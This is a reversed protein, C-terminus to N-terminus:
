HPVFAEAEAGGVKGHENGRPFMDYYTKQM